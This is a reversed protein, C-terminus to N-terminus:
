EELKGAKLITLGKCVHQNVEKELDRSKKEKGLKRM